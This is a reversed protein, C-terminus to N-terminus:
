GRGERWLLPAQRRLKEYDENLKALDTDLLERAQEILEVAHDSVNRYTERLFTEYSEVIANLVTSCDDAVPGRFSLFLIIGSSRGSDRPAHPIVVLSRVILQTPDDLGAFSQLAGLQRKQVARGVILPSKVLAEHLSSQDEAFPLAVEHGPRKKIVLVQATSQYLPSTNVYYCAAGALGAAAGLLILWKRRWVVRLLGAAGAAAPPDAAEAPAHERNQTM